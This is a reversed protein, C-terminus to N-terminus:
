EVMSNFFLGSFSVLDHYALALGMARGLRSVAEQDTIRLFGSLTLHDRQQSEWQAM